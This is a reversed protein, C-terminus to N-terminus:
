SSTNQKIEKIKDYLNKRFIDRIQKLQDITLDDFAMTDVKTQIDEIPQDNIDLIKSQQQDMNVYTQYDNKLQNKIVRIENLIRHREDSKCLTQIQGYYTNMENLLWKLRSTPFYSFEQNAIKDLYGDIMGFQKNVKNMLKDYLNNIQNINDCTKTEAIEYLRDQVANYVRVLEITIDNREPDTDIAMVCKKRFSYAPTTPKIFTKIYDVFNKRQRNEIALLYFGGNLSDEENAAIQDDFGAPFLYYLDDWLTLSPDPEENNNFSISQTNAAKKKANFDMIGLQSQTEIGYNKLKGIAAVIEQVDLSKLISLFSQKKEEFSM